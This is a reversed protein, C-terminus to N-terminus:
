VQKNRFSDAIYNLFMLASPGDLGGRRAPDMMGAAIAAEGIADLLASIRQRERDLLLSYGNAVASHERDRNRAENLERNLRAFEM